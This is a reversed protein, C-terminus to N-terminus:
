QLSSSSSSLASSFVFLPIESVVKFYAVPLQSACGIKWKNEVKLQQPESDEHTHRHM